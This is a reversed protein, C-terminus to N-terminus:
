HKMVKSVSELATHKMTRHDAFEKGMEVYLKAEDTVLTAKRVVNRFLIDQIKSANLGGEIHFTRAQGTDEDILALIQAHKTKSQGKIYGKARPSTNLHYTEDAQVNGGNSGMPSPMADVM